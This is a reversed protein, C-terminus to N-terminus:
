LVSFLDLFEYLTKSGVGVKVMFGKNSGVSDASNLLQAVLKSPFCTSQHAIPPIQDVALTWM